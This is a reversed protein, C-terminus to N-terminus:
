NFSGKNCAVRRMTDLQIANTLPSECRLGDRVHPGQRTGPVPPILTQSLHKLHGRRTAAEFRDQEIARPDRRLIKFFRMLALLWPLLDGVDQDIHARELRLAQRAGESLFIAEGKLRM